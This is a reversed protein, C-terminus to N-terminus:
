RIACRPSSTSAWWTWSCAAAPRDGGRGPAGPALRRDRRSRGAGHALLTEDLTPVTGTITLDAQGSVARVSGDFAQLAGRNLVQIAVVSAVGLAVGVVTLLFLTRSERLQRRM